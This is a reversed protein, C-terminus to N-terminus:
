GASVPGAGGIALRCLGATPMIGSHTARCGSPWGPAGRPGTVARQVASEHLHHPGIPFALLDPGETRRSEMACKILAATRYAACSSGYPLTV